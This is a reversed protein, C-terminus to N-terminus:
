NKTDRLQSWLYPVIILAVLFLMIVAIASAQAFQNSRFGKTYVLLGPVVTRANDPGAMAFVLDFIKLSIHGLIIMASLIIPNLQPLIIHRYIGIESAGDVRAAERLEEPIGRIGALFMAMTYGSMQWVAAIIIGLLAANFGKPAIAGEAEPVDLPLWLYDWLGAVFILLVIVAASVMIIARRTYPNPENIGRQRIQRVQALHRSSVAARVALFALIVIGFMTIYRPVDQWEFPFLVEKSNLWNFDIPDLGITTPLLNIGGNPQLMWRWITGTVVFSLAMPFLFITRFLGEGLVDRDLLVALFLGIAICGAVFFVTLFFTNVLSVRFNAQNINTMLDEYNQLGVYSKVVSQSLAPQEPNSGWDTLSTDIARGIFVYVFIGLLILSPLVMLFATIRDQKSRM